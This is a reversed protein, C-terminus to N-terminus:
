KLEESSASLEATDAQLVSVDNTRICVSFCLLCVDPESYILELSLNLISFAHTCFVLLDLLLM